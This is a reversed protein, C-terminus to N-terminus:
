YPIRSKAFPPASRGGGMLFLTLVYYVMNPYYDCTLCLLCYKFSKWRYYMTFWIQTINVQLVYYVEAPAHRHLVLKNGPEIRPLLSNMVTLLLTSLIWILSSVRQFLYNYKKVKAKIGIHCYRMLGSWAFDMDTCRKWFVNHRPNKIFVESLM